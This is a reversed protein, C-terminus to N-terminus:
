ATELHIGGDNPVGGGGKGDGGLHVEVEWLTKQRLLRGMLGREVQEEFGGLSRGM